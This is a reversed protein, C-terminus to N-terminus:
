FEWLHVLDAWPLLHENGVMKLLQSMLVGQYPGRGIESWLPRLALWRLLCKWMLVILTFDLFLSFLFSLVVRLPIIRFAGNCFPMTCYEDVPKLEHSQPHKLSHLKSAGFPAQPSRLSSPHYRTGHPSHLLSPCFRPAPRQLVTTAFLALPRLLCAFYVMYVAIVTLQEFACSVLCTTSIPGM